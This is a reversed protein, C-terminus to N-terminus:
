TYCYFSVRSAHAQIAQVAASQVKRLVAGRVQVLHVRQPVHVEM